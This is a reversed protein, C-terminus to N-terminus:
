WYHSTTVVHHESVLCLLAKCCYCAVWVTATTTVLRYHKTAIGKAAHELTARKRVGGNRTAPANKRNACETGALRFPASLFVKRQKAEM